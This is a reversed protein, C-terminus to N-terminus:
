TASATLGRRRLVLFSRDKVRQKKGDKPFDECIATFGEKKEWGEPIEGGDPVVIEFGAPLIDNITTM